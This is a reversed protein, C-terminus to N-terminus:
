VENVHRRTYLLRQVVTIHSLTGVIFATINMILKARNPIFHAILAGIILLLLKEQREAIGVTCSKLGGISEAKARTYSAMIMGFMAYFSWFWDMYGGASIGCLVIYEAYRDIVHDLVGGFRTVRGTARAVSGDLMDVFGVLPILLAGILLGLKIFALAAM